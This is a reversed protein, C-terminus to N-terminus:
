AYQKQLNKTNWAPARITGSMFIRWLQGAKWSRYVKGCDRGTNYSCIAYGTQHGHAAVTIILKELSVGGTNMNKFIYFALGHLIFVGQIQHKM